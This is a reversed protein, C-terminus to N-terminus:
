IKLIRSIEAMHQMRKLEKHIGGRWFWPFYSFSLLGLMQSFAHILTSFCAQLGSDDCISTVIFVSTGHKKRQGLCNRRHHSQVQSIRNKQCLWSTPKVKSRLVALQQNHMVAANVRLSTGISVVFPYQQASFFSQSVRIPTDRERCVPVLATSQLAKPPVMFAAKAQHRASPITLMM